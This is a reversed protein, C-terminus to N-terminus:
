MQWIESFGQIRYLVAHLTPASLSVHRCNMRMFNDSRRCDCGILIWVRVQPIHPPLCPTLFLSSASSSFLSLLLHIEIQTLTILRNVAVSPPHSHLRCHHHGRALHCFPLPHLSPSISLGLSTLSACDLAPVLGSSPPSFSVNIETGDM